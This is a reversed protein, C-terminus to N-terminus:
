KGVSIVGQWDPGPAKRRYASCLDLYFRSPGDDPMLELCRALLVEVQEWNGSRFNDVMEPFIEVYVRKHAPTQEHQDLLEYISVPRSKGSLLFTGLMRTVLGTCCSVVDESALLCTGLKKNLGEIRSATNVIDGVPAYEYHGAAGIHGMLLYGCHLGIRTPLARDGQRINFQQIERSIDLAARCAQAQLEPEPVTSPWLAFMSDGIMNTVTGEHRTVQTFLCEYYDSMLSSMERPPLRESLSTYNRADSLLCTGYIMRDGSTVFSLDKSIEEVVHDPLYLQLAKHMHRREQRTRIYKQLTALLYAGPLLIALPIILPPWLNASFVVRGAVLGAAALVTLVAAAMIPQLLFSVLCAIATVVLIVTIGAPISLPTLQSNDRLNAYVTAAIEVGSLDLGDPQTYVTHFGDKQESWSTRAAGVFVTRDTIAANLALESSYEPLVLRHMSITPLTSPPGYFNVYMYNDGRYVRSLATVLNLDVDTLTSCAPPLDVTETVPGVGQKVARRIACMTEVLGKETILRELPSTLTDTEPVMKRFCHFFLENRDLAMAQLVTVPLTPSDDISHKFTWAQNVRVPVKPLPFPAMGLAPAALPQIPSVLVEVDIAPGATAFTNDINRRLLREVLIVKGSSRIAEALRHDDETNKPDAFHVDFVIIGAGHRTLTEILDAYVTRPWKYPNEPFGFKVASDEDVNVILVGDPPEIPGRLKFLLALGFDEELRQGLPSIYLVIAAVGLLLAFLLPTASQKM